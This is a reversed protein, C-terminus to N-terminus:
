AAVLAEAKEEFSTVWKREDDELNRGQGVLAVEYPIDEGMQALKWGSFRHSKESIDKASMGRFEAVVKNILSIEDVSFQSIDPKEITILREQSYGHHDVTKEIIKRDKILQTRSERLGRPAPGYELKQYMRDTIPKGLNLFALFDCYFLLKNLKTTGQSKDNETIGTIYMILNAFKENNKGTAMGDTYCLQFGLM